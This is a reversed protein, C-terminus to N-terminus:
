LRLSKTVHTMRTLVPRTGRQLFTTAGYADLQGISLPSFSSLREEASESRSEGQYFTLSTMDGGIVDNSQLEIPKAESAATM